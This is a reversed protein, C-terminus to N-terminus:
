NGEKEWGLGERLKVMKTRKGLKPLHNDSGLPAFRERLNNECGIRLNRREVDRSIGGKQRAWIWGV